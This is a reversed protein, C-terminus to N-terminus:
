GDRTVEPSIMCDGEFLRVVDGDPWYIELDWRAPKPLMPLLATQTAMMFLTITGSTGGLMIGSNETSLNLIVVPSPWTERVQARATCGTLDVPQATDKTPGSKWTLTQRLTAGQYITLRKPIPPIVLGM